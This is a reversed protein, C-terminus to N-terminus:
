NSTYNFTGNNTFARQDIGLYSASPNANVTAGNAIVTAGTDIFSGGNWTLTGNVTLTSTGEINGNKFTLSSVSVPADIFVNAGNIQAEGSFSAGSALHFDGADLSMVGAGSAGFQGTASASAGGGGALSLTGAASTVTGDNDFALGVAATGGSTKTFT